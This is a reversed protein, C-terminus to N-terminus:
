KKELKLVIIPEFEYLFILVLISELTGKETKKATKEAKVTNKPQRVLKNM